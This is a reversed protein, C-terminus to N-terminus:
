RREVVHVMIPVSATRAGGNDTAVAVIMAHGVKLNSLTATYPARTATGVRRGPSGIVYSDHVYFDVKTIRGDPDEARAVAVVPDDQAFETHQSPQTLAVIPPVNQVGTVTVHTDTKLGDSDTVTATIRQPGSKVPLRLRYPPRELTQVVRGDVVFTVSRVMGGLKLADVDISATRGATLLMGQSVNSFRVYPPEQPAEVNANLALDFTLGGRNKESRHIQVAIVNRGKRLAASDVKVPFYIDRELKTTADRALASATAREPLNTSYIQQDNLYVAAADSRKIRLYLNRFFSPDEVDFTYRFYYSPTAVSHARTDAAEVWGLDLKRLNWTSDDFDIDRWKDSLRDNGPLWRWVRGPEILTLKDLAIEYRQGGVVANPDRPTGVQVVDYILHEGKKTPRYDKKLEFSLWVPHQEGPKLEIGELVADARAIRLKGDGTFEANQVRANAVRLRETLERGFDVNVVGREFFEAGRRDLMAGIRLGTKVPDRLPNALLFKIKFFPGPITDVVSVNKWAINNNQRTNFNIDNTEAVIMGFPATTSTEIRAILCVHHPDNVNGFGAPNPPYWPIELIVEEGAQLAPITLPATDYYPPSTVSRDNAPKAYIQGGSATWPDLEAASLSNLLGDTQVATGDWPGMTGTITVNGAATGYTTAPDLNNLNKRQWRAWLEDVKAHLLFFFPDRSAYPQFLQDGATRLNAFTNDNPTNPQGAIRVHSNNHSPTEIGGSFNSAAAADDYNTRGVNTADSQALPGGPRLKRGPAVTGGPGFFPYGADVDPSLPAGIPSPLSPSGSGPFVGMMPTYNFPGTVPNDTWQWYLLKVTPDAEQLLGEYRNIFERHWPLFAVSPIWAGTVQDPFGHRYTPGFRHIEQQTRWYSMGAPFRFAPDTAMKRLAAVYADREAQTATAANKRVKTIESGFLVGAQMNDNFSTPWSLGTSASAWYFRLRETGNSAGGKNRIRVYVYNPKGSLPSRYDPNFHTADVWAPPSASQYPRPNWGPMPDNRVWIDPSIWMPDSTPNPEAGTDNLDDRIYLDAHAVSVTMIGASVSALLRLLAIRLCHNRHKTM